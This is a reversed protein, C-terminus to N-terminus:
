YQKPEVTKRLDTHVSFPREDNQLDGTETKHIEDCYNVDFYHFVGMEWKRNNNFLFFLYKIGTEMCFYKCVFLYLKMPLSRGSISHM